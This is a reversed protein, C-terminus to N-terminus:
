EAGADAAADFEISDSCPDGLGCTGANCCAIAIPCSVNCARADHCANKAVAAMFPAVANVNVAQNACCSDEIVAACDSNVKCSQDFRSARVVTCNSCGPAVPVLFVAGALGFALVLTRRM